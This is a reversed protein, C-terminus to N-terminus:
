VCLFANDAASSFYSDLKLLNANDAKFLTCTSISCPHLQHIFEKDLSSQDFGKHKQYPTYEYQLKTYEQCLRGIFRM